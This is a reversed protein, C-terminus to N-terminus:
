NINKSLDRLFKILEEYKILEPKYSVLLSCYSPITEIIAEHNYSKLIKNFKNLKKNTEERIEDGFKILVSCDGASFFEENKM